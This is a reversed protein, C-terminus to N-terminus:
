RPAASCQSGLHIRIAQILISRATMSMCRLTIGISTRTYTILRSRKTSRMM